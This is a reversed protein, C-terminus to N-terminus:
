HHHTQSDKFQIYNYSQVELTEGELIRYKKNVEVNAFQQLEGNQWRITLTKIITTNGLGIEAQLSGSGFSGGTGITHYLKEDNNLEIEIVSGIGNYNTSQGILEVVIWNNNSIPNEFLVNTFTDGELAGGMVAYIDQDGDRDIDAFGIGHGKQIHGM